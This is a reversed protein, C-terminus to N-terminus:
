KVEKEIEDVLYNLSDINTVKFNILRKFPKVKINNGSIPYVNQEFDLQGRKNVLSKFKRNLKVADYDTLSVDFIVKNHRHYSIVLAQLM